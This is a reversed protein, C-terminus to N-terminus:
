NPKPGCDCPEVFGSGSPVLIESKSINPFGFFAKSNRAPSVLTMIGADASAMYGWSVYFDSNSCKRDYWQWTAVSVGPPAKLHLTCPIPRYVDGNTHISFTIDVTGQAHNTQRILNGLKWYTGITDLESDERALLSVNTNYDISKVPSTQPPITTGSDLESDLYGFYAQTNEDVNEVVMVIFGNKDHGANVYFGHNAKNCQIPGFGQISCDLGSAAQVLFDCPVPDAVTSNTTGPTTSNASTISQRITLHWKCTRDDNFRQRVVEDLTWKKAVSPSETSVPRATHVPTAATLSVLLALLVVPVFRM